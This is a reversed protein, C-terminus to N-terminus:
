FETEEGHIRIGATRNWYVNTINHTETNQDDRSTQGYRFDNSLRGLM